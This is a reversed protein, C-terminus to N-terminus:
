RRTLFRLNPATALQGRVALNDSGTLSVLRLGVGLLADLRDLSVRGVGLDFVM